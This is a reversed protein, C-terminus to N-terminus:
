WYFRSRCFITKKGIINEAVDLETNDRIDKIIILGSAEIDNANVYYLYDPAELDIKWTIQGNTVKQESVGKNYLSTDDALSKASRITFPMDPTAIDFIYTQGKYLTLTTNSNPNNPNFNYAFNDVNDIYNVPITSTIERANGYVAIPDPGQPLWYYERFNTFKDWNIHPDWAYFEQSNLLSHNTNEANRIVTSNVYDRYDRHLLVNGINDELIAAPELQYDNREASVDALYNDTNKYAKSDKRGLFGTVKEIVGPQTMQDITSSLFKENAVTRFYRPLLDASKRKKSSGNVPLGSEEQAM